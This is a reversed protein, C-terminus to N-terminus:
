HKANASEKGILFSWLSVCATEDVDYVPMERAVVVSAPDVGTRLLKCFASQDYRSPPGGRRQKPELLLSRDLHPAAVRTLRGGNVADHCNACRVADPPLTEDHGRVRGTLSENGHFLADGRRIESSQALLLAAAFSASLFLLRWV